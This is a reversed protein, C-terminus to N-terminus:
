FTQLNKMPKVPGDKRIHKKKHWLNNKMSLLNGISDFPLLFFSWSTPDTVAIHKVQKRM